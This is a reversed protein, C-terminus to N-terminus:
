NFRMADGGDKWHGIAAKLCEGYLALMQARVPVNSEALAKGDRRLIMSLLVLAVGEPSDPFTMPRADHGAAFAFPDLADSM